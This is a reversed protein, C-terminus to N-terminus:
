AAELIEGVPAHEGAAAHDAAPVDEGVYRCVMAAFTAGLGVATLLVIDGPALRGDRQAAEINLFNDASWCHGTEALTGHDIQEHEFGISMGTRVSVIRGVNHPLYRQLESADANAEALARGIVRGVEGDYIQSFLPASVEDLALSEGGIPVQRSAYGLLEHSGSGLSVAVAATAEGLLAIRPIVRSGLGYTKEGTLVIAVADPDGDDTLLQVALETAFMGGACAHDSVTFARANGFGAQECVEAILRDPWPTGFRVTRARVVWTVRERLGDIGPVAEIAELLLDAERRDPDVCIRDFGAGRRFRRADAASFGLEDSLEEVTRQRPRCTGIGIISAMNEGAESHTIRPREDNLPGHDHQRSPFHEEVPLADAATFAANPALVQEAACMERQARTLPARLGRDTGSTSM